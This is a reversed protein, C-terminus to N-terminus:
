RTCRASRSAPSTCRCCSTASAATSRSTPTPAPSCCGSTPTTPARAGCSRATSSGSTATASPTRRWAPSTPATADARQVAPVVHGRRHHRAAAARRKLDDSGHALLTPAALGMGGGVATGVAGVAAFEEHVIPDAWGPLGRGYWEAPWTPTAWGSEVLKRRWDLLALDPDWNDALWQRSRAVGRCDTRADSM